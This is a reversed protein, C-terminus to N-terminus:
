KAFGGSKLQIKTKDEFINPEKESNATLSGVTIEKIKIPM